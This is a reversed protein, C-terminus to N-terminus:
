YICGVNPTCIKRDCFLRLMGLKINCNKGVAGIMNPKKICHFDLKSEIM